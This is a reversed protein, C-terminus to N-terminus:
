EAGGSEASSDQEPKLFLRSKIENAGADWGNGFATAAWAQNNLALDHCQACCNKASDLYEKVFANVAKTKNQSM